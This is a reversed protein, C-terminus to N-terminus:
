QAATFIKLHCSTIRTLSLSVGLHHLVVGTFLLPDGPVTFYWKISCFNSFWSSASVSFQTTTTCKFSCLTVLYADTSFRSLCLAVYFFAATPFFSIIHLWQFFHHYFILSSLSGFWHASTPFQANHLAVLYSATFSVDPIVCLWRFLCYKYVQSSLPGGLSTCHIVQSSASDSLLLISFGRIVSLWEILLCHFM